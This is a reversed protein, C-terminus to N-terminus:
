LNESPNESGGGRGRWGHMFGFLVGKGTKWLFYIFPVTFYGATWLLSLLRGLFALSLPVLVQPMQSLSSSLVDSKMIHLPSCLCWSVLWALAQHAKAEKAYQNYNKNKGLSIPVVWWCRKRKIFSCMLNMEWGVMWFVGVHYCICFSLSSYALGWGPFSKSTPKPFFCLVSPAMPVVLNNPLHLHLLTKERM